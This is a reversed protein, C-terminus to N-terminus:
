CITESCRNYVNGLVEALVLFHWALDQGGPTSLTIAALPHSTAAAEHESQHAHPGGAAM